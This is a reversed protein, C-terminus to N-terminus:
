TQSVRRGKKGPEAVTSSDVLVGGGRRLETIGGSMMGEGKQVMTERQFNMGM